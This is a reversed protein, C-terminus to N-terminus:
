QQMSTRSCGREWAAEVGGLLDKALQLPVQPLLPQALSILLAIVRCTSIRQLMRILLWAEGRRYTTLIGHDVVMKHRNSNIM